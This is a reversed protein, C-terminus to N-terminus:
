RLKLGVSFYGSNEYVYVGAGALIAYGGGQPVILGDWPSNMTLTYTTQHNTASDTFSTNTVVVSGNVGSFNNYYWTGNGDATTAATKTSGVLMGYGFGGSRSDKLDIIAVNQGGSSFVLATGINTGNHLVQWKGGGLSNLTGADRGACSSPSQDYSSSTCEVWTGDANLRFTGHGTACASGSCQVGVYNYTAQLAALSTVPSNVGIIPITRDVGNITERIGGVLLGNPLVAVRANPSGSPTYTGDGNHTLTGSGTRGTLGYQSEDITYSYTLNATDISYTILEGVAAAATYSTSSSPTTTTTSSSSGGGGGGGGCSAILMVIPIVIAHAIVTIKSM